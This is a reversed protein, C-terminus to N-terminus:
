TVNGKQLAKKDAYDVIADSPFVLISARGMKAKTGLTRLISLLNKDLPNVITKSDLRFLASSHNEITDRGEQLIPRHIKRSDFLLEDENSNKRRGWILPADFINQHLVIPFGAMSSMQKEFEPSNDIVDFPHLILKVMAFQQVCGIDAYCQGVSCGFFDCDKSASIRTLLSISIL